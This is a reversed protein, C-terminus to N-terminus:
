NFNYRMEIKFYTDIENKCFYPLIHKYDIIVLTILTENEKKKCNEKETKTCSKERRM